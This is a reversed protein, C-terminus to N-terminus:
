PCGTLEPRSQLRVTQAAYLKSRADPSSLSDITDAAKECARCDASLDFAYDRAAQRVLEDALEFKARDRIATEANRFDELLHSAEYHDM